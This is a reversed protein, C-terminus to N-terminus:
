GVAPCSHCTCTNSSLFTCQRGHCSTPQLVSPVFRTDSSSAPHGAPRRLYVRAPSLHISKVTRRPIDRVHSSHEVTAIGRLGFAQTQLFVGMRLDSSTPKTTADGSTNADLLADASPSRSRSHGATHNRLAPTHIGNNTRYRYVVVTRRVVSVAVTGAHAEITGLDISPTSPRGCIPIPRPADSTTRSLAERQSRHGHGSNPRRASFSSWDLDGPGCKSSAPSTWPELTKPRISIPLLKPHLTSAPSVGHRKCRM